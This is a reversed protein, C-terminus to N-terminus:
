AVDELSINHYSLIQHLEDRAIQLRNQDEFKIKQRLWEDIDLIAQYWLHGDTALKFDDKDEPLAFELVAKM